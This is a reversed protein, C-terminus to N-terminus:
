WSNQCLGDTVCRPKGTVKDCWSEGEPCKKEEPPVLGGLVNKMEEHSLKKKNLDKM